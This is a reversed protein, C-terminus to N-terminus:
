RFISGIKQLDFERLFSERQKRVEFVARTLIGLVNQWTANRLRRVQNM